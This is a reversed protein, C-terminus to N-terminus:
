IMKNIEDIIQKQIGDDFRINAIDKYNKKGDKEYEESPFAIFDGKSGSVVKCGTIMVNGIVSKTLLTFFCLKDSYNKVNLIAFKDDIWNITTKNTTEETKKKM